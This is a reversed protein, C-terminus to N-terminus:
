RDSDPLELIEGSLACRLGEHRVEFETPNLKVHAHVHRQLSHMQQTERFQESGIEQHCSLLSREVASLSDTLLRM